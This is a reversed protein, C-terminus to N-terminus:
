INLLTTMNLKKHVVKKQVVINFIIKHTGNLAMEIM